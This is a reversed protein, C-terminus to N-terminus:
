FINKFGLVARGHKDHCEEDQVTNQNDGQGKGRNNHIIHLLIKPIHCKTYM